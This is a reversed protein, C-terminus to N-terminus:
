GEPAESALELLASHVAPSGALVGGGALWAGPDGQWDTVVGGSELVVLAGAAM